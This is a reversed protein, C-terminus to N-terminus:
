QRISVLINEIRKKLVPKRIRRTHAKLRKMLLERIREDAHYKITELRYLNDMLRIENFDKLINNIENRASDYKGQLDVLMRGIRGVKPNPDFSIENLFDKLDKENIQMLVAIMARKVEINTEEEFARRITKLYTQSLPM